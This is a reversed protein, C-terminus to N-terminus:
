TYRRGPLQSAQGPTPRHAGRSGRSGKAQGRCTGSATFPRSGSHLEPLRTDATREPERTSSDGALLSQLWHCLRSQGYDEWGVPMKEPDTAPDLWVLDHGLLPYIDEPLGLALLIHSRFCSRTELFPVQRHKDDRLVTLSEPRDEDRKIELDVTRDDNLRVTCLSFHEHLITWIPHDVDTTLAACPLHLLLRQGDHALGLLHVLEWMWFPQGAAIKLHRNPWATRLRTSFEQREPNTMTMSNQLRGYVTQEPLDERGLQMLNGFLVKPRPTETLRCLFITAALFAASRSVLLGAHRNLPPCAPYLYVKADPLNEGRSPYWVGILDAISKHVRDAPETWSLQKLRLILHHFGVASDGPLPPPTASVPLALVKALDQPLRSLSLEVARTIKEPLIAEPLQGHWLLALIQLLLLRNAEEALQNTPLSEVHDAESRQSRWAEMLAPRAQDLTALYLNCLYYSSLEPVPVVGLVALMKLEDFLDELLNRFTEPQEPNTMDLNRYEVAQAEKVQWIRVQNAEWTVFYSLGLAEACHCGHELEKELNNEPTLIIGGSMLSQRNIWLVLPPRLWGQRTMIRPFTDIRRFPVRGTDIINEAWSALQQTFQQLHPNM